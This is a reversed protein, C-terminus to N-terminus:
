QGCHNQLWLFYLRDVTEEDIQWSTIPSSEIIKTKQFNFKLGAKESEEKMWIFIQNLQSIYIYIYLCIYVYMFVFLMADLLFSPLVCNIYWLINCNIKLYCCILKMTNSILYYLRLYNMPQFSM